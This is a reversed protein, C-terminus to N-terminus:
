DQEGSKGLNNTFTRLIKLAQDKDRVRDWVARIDEPAFPHRAILDAPACGIKEAYRELVDQNYPLKGTEIRSLTGPTKGAHAAMVELTLERSERWDRMFHQM